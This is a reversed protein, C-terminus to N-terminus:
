LIFWERQCYWTHTHTHKHTCVAARMRRLLKSYSNKGFSKETAHIDPSNGCIKQFIEVVEQLATQLACPHDNHAASHATTSMQLPSISHHCHRGVQLCSRDHWLSEISFQIHYSSLSHTTAHNGCHGRGSRGWLM